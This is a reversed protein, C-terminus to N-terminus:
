DDPYENKRVRTDAHPGSPQEPQDFEPADPELERLRNLLAENNRGLEEMASQVYGIQKEYKIHQYTATGFSEFVGATPQFTEEHMLMKINQKIQFWSTQSDALAHLHEKQDVSAVANQELYQRVQDATLDKAFEEPTQMAHIGQMSKQNM